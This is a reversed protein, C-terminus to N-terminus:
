SVNSGTGCNSTPSTGNNCDAGALTGSGCSGEFGSGTGCSVGASTGNECDLSAADGTACAATSATDGVNCQDGAVTGVTCDSSADAGDACPGSYATDGNMCDGTAGQPIFRKKSLGFSEPSLLLPPSYTKKPLSAKEAM